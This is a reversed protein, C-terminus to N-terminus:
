AYEQVEAPDNNYIMQLNNLHRDWFLLSIHSQGGYLLDMSEPDPNGLNKELQSWIESM